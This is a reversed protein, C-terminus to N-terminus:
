TKKVLNSVNFIKNEVATLATTTVLNTFTPIKNELESIKAKFRNQQPPFFGGGGGGAVLKEETVEVFKRILGWLKRVILKFGKTVSTYFKLAM